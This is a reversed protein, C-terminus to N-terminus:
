HKSSRTEAYFAMITLKFLVIFSYEYVTYPIAYLSEVHIWKTM